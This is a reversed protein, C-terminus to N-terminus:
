NTPPAAETCEIVRADDPIESADRRFYQGKIKKGAALVKGTFVDGVSSPAESTIGGCLVSTSTNFLPKAYSGKAMCTCRYDINYTNSHLSLKGDENSSFTLNDGIVFGYFDSKENCDYTKDILVTCDLAQARNASVVTTLALTFLASILFRAKQM